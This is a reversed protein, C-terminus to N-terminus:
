TSIHTYLPIDCIYCSPKVKLPLSLHSSYYCPVNSIKSQCNRCHFGPELDSIRVHECFTPSQKNHSGKGLTGPVVLVLMNKLQKKM